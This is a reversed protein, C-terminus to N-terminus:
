EMVIQWCSVSSQASETELTFQQVTTKLMSTQRKEYGNEELLWATLRAISIPKCWNHRFEVAFVCSNRNSFFEFHKTTYTIAHNTTINPM